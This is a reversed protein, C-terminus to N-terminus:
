DYYHLKWLNNGIPRINESGMATSIGLINVFFRKNNKKGEVRLVPSGSRRFRTLSFSPPLKKSQLAPPFGPWPTRAAPRTGAAM